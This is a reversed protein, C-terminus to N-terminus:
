LYHAQLQRTEKLINEQKKDKFNYEAKANKVKSQLTNSINDKSHKNYFLQLLHQKLEDTRISDNLFPSSEIHNYLLIDIDDKNNLGEIKKELVDEYIMQYFKIAYEINEGFRIDYPLNKNIDFIVNGYAVSDDLSTKSLDLGEVQLLDKFFDTNISPTHSIDTNEQLLKSIYLTEKEVWEKFKEFSIKNKKLLDKGSLYVNGETLNLHNYDPIKNTNKLVLLSIKEILEKWKDMEEDSSISLLKYKSIDIVYLKMSQKESKRENKWDLVDSINSTTFIGSGPSDFRKRELTFKLSDAVIYSKDNILEPDINGVHFTPTNMDKAIDKLMQEINDKDHIPNFVYKQQNSYIIVPEM